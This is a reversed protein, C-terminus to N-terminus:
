LFTNDWRPSLYSKLLFFDNKIKLLIFNGRKVGREKLAFNKEGEHVGLHLHWFDGFEPPPLPPAEAGTRLNSQMEEGGGDM